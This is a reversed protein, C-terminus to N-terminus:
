QQATLYKLLVHLNAESLRGPPFAPMNSKHEAPTRIQVELWNPSRRAGVHDLPIRGTGVTGIRHCGACKQVFVAQGATVEDATGNGTAPAPAQAVAGQTGGQTRIAVTQTADMWNVEAGLAESVFRLPVMVSNGYLRAPVDLSVPKGNVSAVASNVRLRVTTDGRRATVAQNAPNWDVTAGLGEFIGRLPVLVRNDVEMPRQDAFRVRQGDITVHIHAQASATALQGHAPMARHILLLGALVAGCVWVSPSVTRIKRM